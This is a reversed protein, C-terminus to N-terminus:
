ISGNGYLIKKVILFECYLGIFLAICVSQKKLFQLDILILYTPFYFSKGWTLTYVPAKCVCIFNFVDVSSIVATIAM